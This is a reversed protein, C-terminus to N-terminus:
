YVRKASTRALQKGRGGSLLLALCGLIHPYIAPLGAPGSGQNILVRGVPFM